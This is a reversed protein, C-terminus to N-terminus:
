FGFTVGFVYEGTQPNFKMRCHKMIWGSVAAIRKMRECSPPPTPTPSPTEWPSPTVEPYPSPSPTEWPAPSPTVPYPSPSPSPSPTEWPYPSQSPTPSPSPTTWPYPSQTPSPSPSPTACSADLMNVCKGSMCFGTSCPRCDGVQAYACGNPTCTDRTCDNNDTCQANSTCRLAPLRIPQLANGTVTAESLVVWVGAIAVVLVAVFILSATARKNM